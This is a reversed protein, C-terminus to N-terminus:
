RTRHRAACFGTEEFRQGSAASTPTENVMSRIPKYFFHYADDNQCTAPGSRRSSQVSSRPTVGTRTRRRPANRRFSGSWPRGCTGGDTRPRSILAAPAPTETTKTVGNVKVEFTYSGAAWNGCADRSPCLFDVVSTTGEYTNPALTIVAQGGRGITASTQDKDVTIPSSLIARIVTDKGAVFKRADGKQVGIAQNIEITDIQVQALATFSLSSLALSAIALFSARRLM